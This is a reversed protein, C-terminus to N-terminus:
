TSARATKASTGANTWRGGTKVRGACRRKRSAKRATKPRSSFPPISVSPRRKPTASCASHARTGSKSAGTRTTFSSPTTRSARWSCRMREESRRLRAEARKHATIDLFTIVIGSIMDESTRYPLLRMLFWRGTQVRVEREVTQLTEMVREIDAALDREGLNNTIDTVPRGIDAPILNFIDRASPTFLKVRMARDLFLTGIETAAMLNQFDNNAQGLEEIKIKLEQNVTTLEENVSQLEEKGTELEEAASRLEENTAQLEENSAKLEETQVEYQEITARLQAKVACWSMKWGACWRIPPASPNRAAAIRRKSEAASAREFMVLIFGRTAEDERLVPRVVLNLTQTEDGVRLSLNRAEVNTRRQVAQHLATRLELRLEPRVIKLLNYSPQGGTMQMYQGARESLHLIDYDENVVVSPPAYQELLRQHIDAYSLREVARSEPTDEVKWRKKETTRAPPALDPIPLVKRTEVARSQFTPHEKDAAVFLDTSGNISESTGMFLFGGPNLAFHFVGMVREQATRNFYILLNRCTILDLHSFPPDKIVNHHAFLVMERLERRVQFGDKGKIFFRHLREPSVDAADNLTYFGNRATAVAQEDIDTAFVQLDPANNLGGAYECLLMAVSYAEEGTACGAVWVRVHDGAGKGEFLKPIIKKELAAFAERDRFFNTVSILLDKLLAQAETAQERLLRAYATLDPLEHVNIRREIRRLVTARKYNAFDHGTRTRLLTFIERLAKEDRDPSDLPEAPLQVQGLQNRYAM